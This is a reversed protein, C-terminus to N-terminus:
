LDGGTEPTAYINEKYYIDEVTPLPAAAARRVVDDIMAACEEKVQAFHEETCVGGELLFREYVKVCDRREMDERVEDMDDRYANTQGYYHAGWRRNKVEVVVMRGPRALAVAEDMTGRLAMLDSGDVIFTPMQFAKARNSIDPDVSQRELPTTMAWGNNDIVLVMPVKYLAGINMAEYCTGESMAGDGVFLLAVQGRGKRKLAWSFGVYMPVNSGLTSMRVGVRGPGTMDSIHLDFGCGRHMGDRKGFIEATYRYLDLRMLAAVQSRHSMVVWDDGRLASVAAVQYAEEGLATHYSTRIHGDNVAQHMKETFIRGRVLHYYMDLLDQRSYDM